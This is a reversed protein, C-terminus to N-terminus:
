RISGLHLVSAMSKNHWRYVLDHIEQCEHQCLKELKSVMLAAWSYSAILANNENKGRVEAFLNFFYISCAVSLHDTTMKRSIYSTVVVAGTCPPRVACSVGCHQETTGASM